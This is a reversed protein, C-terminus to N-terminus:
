SINVSLIFSHVFSCVVGHGPVCDACSGAFRETASTRGMGWWGGGGLEAAGRPDASGAPRTHKQSAEFNSHLLASLTFEHTGEEAQSLDAKCARDDGSFVWRQGLVVARQRVARGEGRHMPIKDEEQLM